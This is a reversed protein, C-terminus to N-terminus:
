MFVARQDPLVGHEDDGTTDIVAAVVDLEDGLRDALWLERLFVHNPKTNRRRLQRLSRNAAQPGHMAPASRRNTVLRVEMM